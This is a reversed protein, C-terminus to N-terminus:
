GGYWCVKVKEKARTLATYAFKRGDETHLRISDELLVLVEPWDSGQSKHTTLCYGFNANLVPEPIVGKRKVPDIWGGSIEELEKIKLNRSLEKGAKRIAGSSVKGNTGFVERDAVLVRHEGTWTRIKIRYFAMNLAENSYRDRVPYLREGVMSPTSDVSLIEGNYAEVTYNNFLALLPEGRQITEPEYGLAARIQANLAHRTVNRHCLTVGGDNFIRVAEPVVQDMSIVPIDTGLCDLSSRLDRLEMSARIIPSELAQRVIETMQVRVHCPADPGMMNWSKKTPDLEVPPLQFGDGIFVLNLGLTQAAKWLDKFMQLSVMSAEDVFVTKNAPVEIEDRERSEFSIEGTKTNELAKYLWRHVTRADQVGAAERVRLAAKGTPALVLLAEEEALTKLATTKGTGAYGNIVCVGGGNPFDNQLGRIAAIATEQGQTLQM